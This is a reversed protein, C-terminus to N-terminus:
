PNVFPEFMGPSSFDLNLEFGHMLVCYLRNTLDKVDLPPLGLHMERETIGLHQMLFRKNRDEPATTSPLANLNFGIDNVIFSYVREELQAM